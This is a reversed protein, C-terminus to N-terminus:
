VLRGCTGVAYIGDCTTILCPNNEGRRIGENTLRRIWLTDPQAIAPNKIIAMMMMVLMVKKM